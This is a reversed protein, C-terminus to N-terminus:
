PIQLGQFLDVLRERNELPADTAQLVLDVRDPPAWRSRSRQVHDWDLEYWNPIGRDRGEIRSRHVEADSCETLIVVLRGTEQEAVQRCREADTSRAMGDLVVSSGRRLHSRALAGLISWGVVQHGPPEMSELERQIAEFPRLGSMVWDHSLVSAGLLGAAEEAVTSKGTGQLGTVLVLLPEPSRDPDLM